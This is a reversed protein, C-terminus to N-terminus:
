LLLHALQVPLDLRDQQVQHVPLDQLVLVEQLDPLVLQEQRVQLAQLVLQVQQELRVLLDQFQLTPVQRDQLVLIVQPELIM